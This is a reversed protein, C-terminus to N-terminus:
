SKVHSVQVNCSILFQVDIGLDNQRCSMNNIKVQYINMVAIDVAAVGSIEMSRCQDVNYTTTVFIDDTYKGKRTGDMSIM